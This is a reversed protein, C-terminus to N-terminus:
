RVREKRDFAGKFVGNFPELLSPVGLEHYAARRGSRRGILFAIVAFVVSM